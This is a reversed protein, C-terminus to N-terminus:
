RPAPRNGSASAASLRALLLQFDTRRIPKSLYDTMGADLANQRDQDSAFASCGVIPLADSPAGQQRIAQTATLGDMVPMQIDMLVLDFSEESLAQVAQQGDSVVRVTHGLDVLMLRVVLASTPTDEAVLVRLSTRTRSQLLQSAQRALDELATLQAVSLLRPQTDIVCLTGLGHGLADKLPVGAYFRINPEGTVLPNDIFRSDAAADQVVMTLEPNQIAHACFAHERPTESAAMGVRAKFWQRTDDVMSILAIPTDCIRSARAVIADYAEEPQTDLIKLATLARLRAPESDMQAAVRQLPVCFSFTAGVGETSQVKLEGGMLQAYRRCISLGLGTGGSFGSLKVFPEFISAQQAPSIGPGTDTVALCLRVRDGPEVIATVQLSVSGQRTFKIANGMLNILVQKIRRADGRLWQPVADDVSASVALTRAAPLSELIRMTASILSHLDFAEDALVEQGSEASSFDLIQNILALLHESSEEITQIRSRLEDDLPGNAIVSAMGMIGNMPTRLEHSVMSIFSSKARNAEEAAMRLSLNTRSDEEALHRAATLAQERLVLEQRFKEFSQSLEGIEDNTFSAQPPGQGSADVHTFNKRLARIPRTVYQWHLLLTLALLALGIVLVATEFDRLAHRVTDARLSGDFYVVLSGLREKTGTIRVSVKQLGTPAVTASTPYIRQGQDDFAEVLAWDPRNAWVRSLTTGVAAHNGAKMDNSLAEALITANNRESDDDWQTLDAGLRPVLWLAFGLTIVLFFLVVPGSTKLFIKM